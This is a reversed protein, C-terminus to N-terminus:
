LISVLQVGAIGAGTHADVVEERVIDRKRNQVQYTRGSFMYCAEAALYDERVEKLSIFARRSYYVPRQWMTTLVPHLRGDTRHRVVSGCDISGQSVSFSMPIIDCFSNYADRLVVGVPHDALVASLVGVKNVFTFASPLDDFWELDYSVLSIDNIVDHYGGCSERFSGTIFSKDFNIKLGVDQLLTYVGEHRVAEVIIDDGFVSAFESHGLLAQLTFTMVDFTLGCGMPGFMNYQHYHVEDESMKFSTYNNRLKLLHRLMREPWLEKVVCLWVSNSANKLDITAYKSHRILTKHLEALNELDIGRTRRVQSRIDTMMSLQCVMNWFPVMDIPRDTTNDKPVTDMRSVDCPTMLCMVMRSFVYYGLSNKRSSALSYERRWARHAEEVSDFPTRLTVERRFHKRVVSKLHVNGYIIATAYPLAEASVEWFSLDSLKAMVDVVGYGPMASEGSPPVFRYSPRFGRFTNHLWERALLFDRRSSSRLSRWNFSRLGSDDNALTVMVTARRRNEKGSSDPVEFKKTARHLILAVQLEKGQLESFAPGFSPRDFALLRKNLRVAEDQLRSLTGQPRRSM